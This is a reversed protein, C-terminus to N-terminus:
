LSSAAEIVGVGVVHGRLACDARNALVDAEEERSEHRRRRAVPFSGRNVVSRRARDHLIELRLACFRGCRSRMAWPRV